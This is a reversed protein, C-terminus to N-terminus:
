KAAPKKVPKPAAKKAPAIEADAEVVEDSKVPEDETEAVVEPEVAKPKIVPQGEVLSLFGYSAGWMIEHPTLEDRRLYDGEVVQKGALECARHVIYYIPAESM